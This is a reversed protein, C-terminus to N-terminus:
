DFAVFPLESVVIKSEIQITPLIIVLRYLCQQQVSMIYVNDILCYDNRIRTPQM